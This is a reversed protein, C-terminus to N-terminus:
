DREIGRHRAVAVGYWCPSVQCAEMVVKVRFVRTETPTFRLVPFSEGTRDTAIENKDPTGLVLQLRMCDNDCVGVISYSVGGALTVAFWESEEANLVGTRSAAARESAPIGLTAFARQLQERVEREWRNEQAGSPRTAAVVLTMVIAARRLQNM